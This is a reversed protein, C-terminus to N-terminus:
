LLLFWILVRNMVLIMLKHYAVLYRKCSVGAFMLWRWRVHVHGRVLASFLSHIGDWSDFNLSRGRLILLGSRTIPRKFDPRDRWGGEDLKFVLGRSAACWLGTSHNCGHLMKSHVRQEQGQQQYLGSAPEEGGWSCAPLWWEEEDNCSRGATPHRLSWLLLLFRASFCLSPNSSHSILLNRM